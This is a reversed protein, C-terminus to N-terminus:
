RDQKAATRDILLSLACIVALVAFVVLATLLLTGV